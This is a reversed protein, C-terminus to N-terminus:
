SIFPELSQKILTVSTILWLITLVVCFFARCKDDETSGIVVLILIPALVFVVCGLWLLFIM